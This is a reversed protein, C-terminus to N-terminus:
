KSASVGSGSSAIYVRPQVKWVLRTCARDSTGVTSSCTTSPDISGDSTVLATTPNSSAGSASTSGGVFSTSTGYRQPEDGLSGGFHRHVGGVRGSEVRKASTESM